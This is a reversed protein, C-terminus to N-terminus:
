QGSRIVEIPKIKKIREDRMKDDVPLEFLDQPKKVGKVHPYNAYFSVLRCGFLFEQYEESKREDFGELANGIEGLTMTYFDNVSM